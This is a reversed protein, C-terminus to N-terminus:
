FQKFYRDPSNAAPGPAPQWYTAAQRDFRRELADRGILKFVLGMPTILLYYVAALMVHSVVFGIPYAAVSMGVYVYRVSPTHIMSLLWVAVGLGVLLTALTPMQWVWYAVAGMGPFGALGILAFQKLTKNDPTWNLEIM